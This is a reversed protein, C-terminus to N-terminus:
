VGVYCFCAPRSSVLAKLYIVKKRPIFYQKLSRYCTGVFTDVATPPSLVQTETTSQKWEEKCNNTSFPMRYFTCRGTQSHNSFKPVRCERFYDNCVKCTTRGRSTRRKLGMCPIWDLVKNKLCNKVKMIWFMKKRPWLLVCSQM